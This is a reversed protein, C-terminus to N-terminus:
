KIMTHMIFSTKEKSYAYPVELNVHIVGLLFPFNKPPQSMFIVSM